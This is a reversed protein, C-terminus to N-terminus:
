ALWKINPVILWKLILNLNQPFSPHKRLFHQHGPHCRWALLLQNCLPDMCCGLHHRFPHHPICLKMMIIRPKYGCNCIMWHHHLHHIHCWHSPSWKRYTSCTMFDIYSALPFQFFSFRFISYLQGHQVFPINYGRLNSMISIITINYKLNKQENILNKSDNPLWGSQWLIYTCLLCPSIPFISDWFHLM